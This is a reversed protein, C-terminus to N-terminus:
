GAYVKLAENFLNKFYIKNQLNNDKIIVDNFIKNINENIKGDIRIDKLKIIKQDFGYLFNLDIRTIKKRYNKPTVLFKYIENHNNLYINSTGDLFLEGDKVYILTNSLKFNVSNKWFFSTDDVDILGEEIKSNLDINFFNSFNLIKDAQITLKLNLNNNNFIETKLLESILASSNFLYSLNLEDTKGKFVSYFPKFNLKGNYAFKPKKLKNFYNFEFYNKNFKYDAKSNLNNYEFNILGSKKSDIYNFQNEIKLRFQNFNIKSFFIKKQLDKFIEISYPINFLENESYLINKLEKANYVYNMKFIKNIFLVDNVMSRYIINGNHIKLSSDKFNNDLIELFFNYNSYNLNFNAKHLIIEKIKLNEVSFLNKFSIFIKAEKIDSIKNKNDIILSEYSIFHPRPFFQYDLKNVFNFELNFNASLENRIKEQIISQNYLNPLSVYSLFLIILAVFFLFIKNNKILGLLNNFKLKNINKELLSHIIKDINKLYKAFFNSKSM